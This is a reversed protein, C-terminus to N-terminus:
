GRQCAGDERIWESSVIAALRYLDSSYGLFEPLLPIAERQHLLLRSGRPLGFEHQHLSDDANARIHRLRLALSPNQSLRARLDEALGLVSPQYLKAIKIQDKAKEEM